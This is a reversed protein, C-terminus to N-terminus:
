ILVSAFVFLILHLLLFLWVPCPFTPRQCFFTEFQYSQSYYYCCDVMPAPTATPTPSACSTNYLLSYHVATTECQLYLHSLLLYLPFLVFCFLVFCFLVFCFLFCFLVFCFLVFCFLVFCFLVFCFLVFCFLVFCFYMCSDVGVITHCLHEANSLLNWGM